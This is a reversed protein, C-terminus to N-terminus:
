ESKESQLNKCDFRKQLLMKLGTAASNIAKSTEDVNFKLLQRKKITKKKAQRKVRKVGV